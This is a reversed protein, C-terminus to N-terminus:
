QLKEIKEINNLNVRKDKGMGQNFHFGTNTIKTIMCGGMGGGGAFTVNVEDGEVIKSGDQLEITKVIKYDM